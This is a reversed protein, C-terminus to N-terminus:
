AIVMEPDQTVDNNEAETTTGSPGAVEHTPQHWAHGRSTKPFGEPLSGEVPM